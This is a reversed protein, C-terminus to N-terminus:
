SPSSSTNRLRWISQGGSVGMATLLPVIGGSTAAYSTVANGNLRFADAFTYGGDGYIIDNGDGAYFVDAGGLGWLTDAVVSGNFVDSQLSGRVTGGTTPSTYTAM